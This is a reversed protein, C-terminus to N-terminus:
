RINDAGKDIEQKMERAATKVPQSITKEPKKDFHDLGLEVEKKKFEQTLYSDRKNAEIKARGAASNMKEEYEKTQAKAMNLMDKMFPSIKLKNQYKQSSLVQEETRKKTFPISNIFHMKALERSRIRDNKEAIYQNIKQEFEKSAEMNKRNIEAQKEHYQTMISYLKGKATDAKQNIFAASKDYADKPIHAVSHAFEAVNDKIRTASERINDRVSILHEKAKILPSRLTRIEKELEAKEKELKLLEIQQKIKDIKDKIDDSTRDTIESTKQNQIQMETIGLHHAEPVDERGIATAAEFGKDIDDHVDTLFKDLEKDQAMQKLEKAEKEISDLVANLNDREDAMNIDEKTAYIEIILIISFMGPFNEIKDAVKEM